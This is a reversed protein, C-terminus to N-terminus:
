TSSRYRLGTASEALPHYTRSPWQDAPHSRLHRLAFKEQVPSNDTAVNSTQTRGNPSHQRTRTFPKLFASHSRARSLCDRAIPLTSGRESVAADSRQLKSTGHKSGLDRLRRSLIRAAIGWTFSMIRGSYGPASVAVQMAADHRCYVLQFAAPRISTTSEPPTYSSRAAM